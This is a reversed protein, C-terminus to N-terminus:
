EELSKALAETSQGIWPTCAGVRFVRPYSRAGGVPWCARGCESCTPTFGIIGKFPVTVIGVEGRSRHHGLERRAEKFPFMVVGRRIWGVSLLRM